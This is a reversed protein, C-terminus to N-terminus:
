ELLHLVEFVDVILGEVIDDVVKFGLLEIFPFAQLGRPVVGRVEEEQLVSNNFNVSFSLVLKLKNQLLKESARYDVVSSEEHLLVAFDEVSKPPVRDEVNQGDVHEFFDKRPVFIQLPLEVIELLVRKELVFWVGQVVDHVHGLV